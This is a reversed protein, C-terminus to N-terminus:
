LMALGGHSITNFRAEISYRLKTVNLKGCISASRLQLCEHEDFFFFFIEILVM